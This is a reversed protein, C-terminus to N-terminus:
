DSRRLLWGDFNLLTHPINKLMEKITPLKESTAFIVQDGSAQSTSVRRLLSSFSLDSASQQKPEDLILLGLHNTEFDRSLELISNLYAWIVRINDSASVYGMDFNGRAPRYTDRSIQLEAAPFSNFGFEKLQSVFYQTMRELKSNDAPTIPGVPLKDLDSHVNSFETSVENGRFALDAVEKVIRSHLEISEELLVRERLSALSPSGAPSVLTEKLSRIKRQLNGIQQRVAAIEAEKANLLRESNARMRAFTEIQGKIFTINDELPM